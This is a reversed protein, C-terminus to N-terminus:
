CSRERMARWYGSRPAGGGLEIERNWATAVEASLTRAAKELASGLM